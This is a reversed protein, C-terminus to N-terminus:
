IAAFQATRKASDFTVRKKMTETHEIFRNLKAEQRRSRGIEVLRLVGQGKTVLLKKKLELGETTYKNM